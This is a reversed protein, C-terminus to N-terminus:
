WFLSNRLKTSTKLELVATLVLTFLKVVAQMLAVLEGFLELSLRPYIRRLLTIKCKYIKKKAVITEKNVDKKMEDFDQQQMGKAIELNSAIIEPVMDLLKAVENLRNIEERIEQDTKRNDPRYQDKWDLIVKEFFGTLIRVSQNLYWETDAADPNLRAFESVLESAAGTDFAGRELGIVVATGVMFFYAKTLHIYEDKFYLEVVKEEPSLYEKYISHYYSPVLFIRTRPHSTRLTEFFEKGNIKKINGGESQIIRYMFLMDIEKSPLENKRYSVHRVRKQDITKLFKMDIQFIPHNIIQPM